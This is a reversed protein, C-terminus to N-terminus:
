SQTGNEISRGSAQAEGVRLEIYVVEMEEKVRVRWGRRGRLLEKKQGKREKGGRQRDGGEDEDGDLVIQICRPKIM